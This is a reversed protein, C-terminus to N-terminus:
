EGNTMATEGYWPIFPRTANLTMVAENLTLIANHTLAEDGERTNEILSM